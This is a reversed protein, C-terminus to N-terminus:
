SWPEYGATCSEMCWKSGPLLGQGGMPTLLWLIVKILYFNAGIIKLCKLGRKLVVVVNRVSADPNSRLKEVNHDIKQDSNEAGEMPVDMVLLFHVVSHLFVNGLGGLHFM